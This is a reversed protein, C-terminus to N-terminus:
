KKRQMLQEVYQKHRGKKTMSVMQLFQKYLRTVKEEGLGSGRAIRMLKRQDLVNPNSREKPTMSKVMVEFDTFVNEDFANKKVLGGLGPISGLLSKLTGMKKIQKFQALLDNFDLSKSYLKKNLKQAEKEDWVKEAREVLSIVDGLGLIRKAIRDPHFLELDITKEGTSIFKIPKGTVKLVTLIVGGPTDGDMKTVVVGDFGVQEHFIRATEVATQGMMADVVFLTESPKLQKKLEVVEKMMAEDVVQRGATDVVVIKKHHAHAHAIAEQAIKYPNKETKNLYVDVDIAKALVELQQQAVPRYVDCSTLLVQKNQEKFHTAIKSALTTKGAGQLGVLLIVAPNGTARVEVQKEGLLEVLADMVIKTFVQGPSAVIKIETGLAKDKVKNVFDKAVNYHVDAAILARRIEKLTPKINQETIKHEGKLRKVANHFKESLFQFM